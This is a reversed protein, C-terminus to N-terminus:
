VVYNICYLTSSLVIMYSVVIYYLRKCLFFSNINVNKCVTNMTNDNGDGCDDILNNYIYLALDDESMDKQLSQIFADVKNM